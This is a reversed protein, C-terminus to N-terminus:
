PQPFSSEVIVAFMTITICSFLLMKNKMNIIHSPAEKNWRCNLALMELANTM